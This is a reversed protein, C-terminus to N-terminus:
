LRSFEASVQLVGLVKGTFSVVIRRRGVELVHQFRYVLSVKGTFSM